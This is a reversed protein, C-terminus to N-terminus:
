FGRKLIRIILLSIVAFMKSHLLNNRVTKLLHPVDSFFFINRTEDCPNVMRNCVSGMIGCWGLQKQAKRNSSAGDRVLGDVQAGCNELLVVAELILKALVASPTTGDSCFSGITQVWGSL